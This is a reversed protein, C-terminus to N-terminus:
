TRRARASAVWDGDHECWAYEIAVPLQTVARGGRARQADDLEVDQFGVFRRVIPDVAKYIAEKIAFCLTVARRDTTAGLRELERATLVRREIPQGPAIARELDIGVRAGVDRVALAAARGHKHSISGVFGAPVIPAGRDDRPIETAACGLEALAARLAVRGLEHPTQEGVVIAIIGHPSDHLEIV